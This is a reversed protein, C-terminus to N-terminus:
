KSGPAWATVQFRQTGSCGCSWPGPVARPVAPAPAAGALWPSWLEGLEQLVAAALLLQLHPLTKCQQETPVELLTKWLKRSHIVM